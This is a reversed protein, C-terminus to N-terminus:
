CRVIVGSYSPFYSIIDLNFINRLPNGTHSSFLFGTDSTVVVGVRKM